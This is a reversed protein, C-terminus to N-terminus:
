KKTFVRAVYAIKLDKSEGPKLTINWTFRNLQDETTRMGGLTQLTVGESKEPRGKFQRSVEVDTEFSSGNKVSVKMERTEDVWRIERMLWFAKGQYHSQKDKVEQSGPERSVVSEQVDGSIGVAEGVRFRGATHRPTYYIRDQSLAVDGKMVLAPGTTLPTDGAKLMWYHVMPNSARDTPSPSHAATRVRKDGINWTVLDRCTLNMTSLHIIAREGKALDIGDVKFLHLSGADTSQANPLEPPPAFNPDSARPQRVEIPQAVTAINKNNGVMQTFQGNSLSNNYFSPTAQLAATVQQLTKQAVMPSAVDVFAFNPVGVVLHVETDKLDLLSNSVEGRLELHVNGEESRELLYSPTWRIGKWLYYYVITVEQGPQAGDLTVTLHQGTQQPDRDLVDSDQFKWEEIESMPVLSLVGDHQKISLILEDGQAVNPMGLAQTVGAPSRLSILEGSIERETGRRRIVVPRGHASSRADSFSRVTDLSDPAASATLMRVSVGKTLCNVGVTGFAADQIPATLVKGSPGVTARGEKLVFVTGDKFTVLTKVRAGLFPLEEARTSSALTVVSILAVALIRM